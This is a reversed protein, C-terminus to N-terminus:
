PHQAGKKHSSSASDYAEVIRAVLRHRVVDQAGLHAFSIDEVGGLVREAEALTNVPGPLDSQSADGTVVFRSNFGLRTLFMKLQASTANQAEDLIVFSDSLTRGRMYALPAVEIIGRDLLQHAREPEMLCFLADFLPRVYPDIKDELTGPLFGLNEGAEVVPRTLIVRRVDHAQLAAVALAMALFTKGTGAPGIGFTITSLRVADVYARQGPTKPVVPKGHATLIPASVAQDVSARVLRRVDEEDMFVGQVAQELLARLFRRATAVARTDGSVFLRQGRLSVSIDLERELVGLLSESAGFAKVPDLSQPLAVSISAESM